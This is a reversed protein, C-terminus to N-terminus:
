PTVNVLSILDRFAQLHEDEFKIEASGIQMEATKSNALKEFLGREMTLMASPQTGSIIGRSVQDVDSLEFRDGDIIIFASDHVRAKPGRFFFFVRDIPQRPQQGEFSLTVSMKLGSVWFDGVDIATRDKFRDYEVSFKKSNRFTKVRERLPVSQQFVTLLTLTLCILFKM